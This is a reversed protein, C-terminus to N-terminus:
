DEIQKCFGHCSFRILLGSTGKVFCCVIVSPRLHVLWCYATFQPVWWNHWLAPRLVGQLSQTAVNAWMRKARPKQLKNPRVQIWYMFNVGLKSTTDSRM